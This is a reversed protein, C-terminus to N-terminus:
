SIKIEARDPVQQLAHFFKQLYPESVEFKLLINTKNIKEIRTTVSQLSVLKLNSEVIHVSSIGIGEQPNVVWDNPVYVSIEFRDNAIGKLRVQKLQDLEIEKPKIKKIPM